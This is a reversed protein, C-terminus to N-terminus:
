RDIVYSKLNELLIKAVEDKLSEVAFFCQVLSTQSQYSKQSERLICGTLIKQANKISNEKLSFAKKFGDLFKAANDNNSQHSGLFARFRRIFSIPDDGETM